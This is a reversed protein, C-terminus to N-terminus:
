VETLKISPVGDAIALHWKYFKGTVSDKIVYRSDYYEIETEGETSERDYEYVFFVIDGESLEPHTFFFKDQSIVAQSVDLETELGTMFDIKSLKELAKIPLDQHLVTMKDSYIGADPVAREIYITGSPYSVINGSVEIPIEVPEALQYILPTGALQERAQELTTGKPFCIRLRNKFNMDGPSYWTYYSNEYGEPIQNFYEYGQRETWNELYVKGEYNLTWTPANELNLNISAVAYLTDEADYISIVDDPTLYLKDSVRKVLEAKGGSVRIEDKTGNPLSRLEAIKGDKDKAMVYVTSVESEDESVSKLRMASITSKTGTSIYERSVNSKELVANKIWATGTAGILNPSIRIAFLIRNTNELVTVNEIKLIGSNVVGTSTVFGLYTSDKYCLLALTAKINGTLEINCQGSIIDGTNFGLISQNIETHTTGTGGTIEIKQAKKETDFSIISTVNAPEWVNFDDVVGDGNTDKDMNSSKVLNTRTEGKVVGSIQGNAANEPLSVIGYGNVKEKPEQNPNMGALTAKYDNLEKNVQALRLELEQARRSAYTKAAGLSIIDMSGGGRGQAM